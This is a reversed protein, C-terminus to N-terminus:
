IAVTGDTCIVNKAPIYYDWNSGKSIANWEAVTGNFRISTLSDCWSFAWDGISTVSNGITVSTLSSCYEFAEYGIFRCNSDIKATTIATDEVDALYLYKNTSNGLYKLGNQFNRQLSSCGSFASSGISTVSDPIEIIKLSRCYYFASDGISTVSDPIEISTLNRCRIFASSGISTVSDTIIVSTLSYCDMFARDGISTVSNPITFVTDKKGSTYRILIKGDKSYLNGDMSKYNANNEDVLISTLSDCGSFASSGIYTVSNPIEISTLSYCYYFAGDGISTVSNGIVVSYLSDCYYFAHDGISTVSDGIEVSYLSDCSSFAEYGISTVSDPIEISTLSACYDFAWDGISTVSNPIEVSILSTCNRFAGYLINGGTITVYKLSSPIYYTTSTTSSTSSGYYNQAARYSGTYNSTGFIYGFPYQYTNSSTVGAKAGVFPLTISELSSCGSFASSGISTISNPIVISTLSTCGRFAEDGISTVSNPIVMSTLACGRFAEDGISTVSNPIEISTLACGRFVAVGISTVSNPITISRLSRCDSFARDGISTVNDGIVVSTLSSCYLFAEYGISTVSDPIEISTLSTCNRFADEGISTVTDPIEISTLSSCDSFAYANIKTAITINAQTVLEGNIYLNKAYYLPNSIYDSFSIQAWQDITGTYNVKTLSRCNYFASSGISTVSDPIVVSTLSDCGAFARQSISTVCDPVIIETITKDIIGTISCTTSTSTFKFNAMEETTFKAYVSMDSLLPADLLSNATFPKEWVDKDWFWGDFIYDEKTPNEPMQIIEAGSTDITAYIENDVFFNIKFKVKGSCATMTLMLTCVALITILISLIKKKM